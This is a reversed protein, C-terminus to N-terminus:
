RRDRRLELFEVLRARDEPSAQFDIQGSSGGSGQHVWAVVGTLTVHVSSQLMARLTVKQGPAFQVSGHFLLSRSGMEQTFLKSDGYGVVQIQLMRGFRILREEQEPPTAVQHMPRGAAKWGLWGIAKQVLTM